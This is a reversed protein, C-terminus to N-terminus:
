RSYVLCDDVVLVNQASSLGVVCKPRDVARVGLAFGLFLSLVGLLLKYKYTM